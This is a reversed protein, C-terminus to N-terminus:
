DCIETGPRSPPLGQGRSQPLHKILKEIFGRGYTHRLYEMIEARTTGYVLYEEVADLSSGAPFEAFPQVRWRDDGAATVALWYRVEGCGRTTASRSRMLTLGQRQALRRLRSERANESSPPVPEAAPEATTEAPSEGPSEAPPATGPQPPSQGGGCTPCPSHVPRELAAPWAPGACRACSM